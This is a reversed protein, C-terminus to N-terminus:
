ARRPALGAAVLDLMRVLQPEDTAAIVCGVLAGVVDGADVDDRLTGDDAGAELLTSVAAVVRRRIEERAIVGSDLAARLADAMGRKTAVFAAYRRLWLSLAEAGTRDDVLAAAAEAVEDLAEAHVAGILAERTPFHRYLTGIGVGADRAIAELSAGSAGPADYAARAATLLAERNRRADARPGRATATEGRTM